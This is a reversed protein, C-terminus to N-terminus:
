DKKKEIGLLVASEARFRRLEENKPQNKDMWAVARDYWKRAEEKHGLQWHAMALPFWEVSDGPSGLAKVKELAAIASEWNGVRYEAYGLTQWYIRNKPELQVAKRALKVAEAPDRLKLDVCTALVWALNSHANANKPDLEIAKRYCAIAEAAKGQSRLANGFCYHANANKPDLEIVKRFCAAANEYERLHDCLIVGLYQHARWNSPDLAIAEKYYAIAEDLKGHLHLVVGLNYHLKTDKVHLAIAKKYCAIAEDLKGQLQLIGGLNGHATGCKPDLEIAKRLYPIAETPRGQVRLANGLNNHATADKPDLAIAKCFAAIAEDLKKQAVLVTGLNNHAGVYRPALAIARQLDAIAAELEGVYYLARARNVLVGPNDSRLALAATLYRLAEAPRRAYFELDFGLQHNAWFDGSYAFQVRRALDWRSPSKIPLARVVILLFSPPQQHVNVDKALAELTAPQKWARRVKDRWPDGDAERLVDILWQRTDSDASPVLYSCEDLAAVVATQLAAPRKQIQTV